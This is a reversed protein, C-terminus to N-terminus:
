QTVETLAIRVKNHAAHLTAAVTGREIELVAAIQQQDLDAYHRLFLVLRQREPLAAIVARVDSWDDAEEFPRTEVLGDIREGGRKKARLCVNLVTRWLWGDLSEVRQLDTRSRLARVFAEHVADRADEADGVVATALRLFRGYGRRYAGEILAVREADSLSDM